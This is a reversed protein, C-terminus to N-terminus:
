VYEKIKVTSPHIITNITWKLSTLPKLYNHYINLFALNATPLQSKNDLYKIEYLNDM